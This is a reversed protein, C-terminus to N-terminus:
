EAFGKLAERMIEKAHAEQEAAITAVWTNKCKVCRHMFDGTSKETYGLPKGHHECKRCSYSYGCLYFSPVAPITAVFALASQASTGLQSWCVPKEELPNTAHVEWQGDSKEARANTYDLREVARQIRIQSTRM